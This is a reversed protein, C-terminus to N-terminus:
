TRCTMEHPRFGVSVQQLFECLLLIDIPIFSEIEPWSPVRYLLVWVISARTYYYFIDMSMTGPCYIIQRLLSVLSQSCFPM